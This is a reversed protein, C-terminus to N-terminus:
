DHKPEPIEVGAAIYETFRDRKTIELDKIAEEITDGDGLLAYRGLQPITAMFGGGDQAPIPKIEIIYPLTMYYDLDKNM